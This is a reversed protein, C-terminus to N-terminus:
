RFLPPFVQLLGVADPRALKQSVVLKKLKPFVEFGLCDGSTETTARLVDLIPDSLGARMIPLPDTEITAKLTM